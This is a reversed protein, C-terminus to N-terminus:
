GIRRLRLLGAGLAGVALALVLGTEILQFPWYRSAPQYTSYLGTYGASRLCDSFSLEVTCSHLGAERQPVERGQADLYGYDLSLGDAPANWTVDSQGPPLLAVRATEPPLYDPRLFMTTALVVVQVVLALGLAGVANRLLLGAAAALCFALV